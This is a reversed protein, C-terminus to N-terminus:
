NTTPERAPGTRLVLGGRCHLGVRASRDVKLCDGVLGRIEETRRNSLVTIEGTSNDRAVFAWSVHHGLLNGLEHALAEVTPENAVDPEPGRVGRRSTPPRGM